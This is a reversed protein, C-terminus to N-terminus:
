SYENQKRKDPLEDIFFIFIGINRTNDSDILVHMIYINHCERRRCQYVMTKHVMHPATVGAIDVVQQCRTYFEKIKEFQSETYEEIAEVIDDSYIQKGM